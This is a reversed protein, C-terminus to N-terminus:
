GWSSIGYAMDFLVREGPRLVLGVGLGAGRDLADDGIDARAAVGRHAFQGLSEIL